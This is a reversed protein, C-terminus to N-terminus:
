LDDVEKFRGRHRLAVGNLCVLVRVSSFLTSTGNLMVPFYHDHFWCTSSYRGLSWAKRQRLVSGLSERPLPQTCFPPSFLNHLILKWWRCAQKPTLFTQMPKYSKRHYPFWFQDIVSCWCLMWFTTYANPCWRRNTTTPMNYEHTNADLPPYALPKAKSM